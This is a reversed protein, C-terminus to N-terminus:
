ISVEMIEEDFFFHFFDKFHKVTLFMYIGCSVWGIPSRTFVNIYDEFGFMVSLALLFVLVSFCVGKMGKLHFMKRIEYSQRKKKVTEHYLTVDKFSQLNREGTILTTELQDMYLGFVLDKEYKDTILQVAEKKDTENASLIKAQFQMIDEKFEGNSRSIASALAEFVPKDDDSLSQTMNHIFKNRQIFAEHQYRKNVSMPMFVKAGYFAGLVTMILSIWWTYLLLFSVGGFALAPLGILRTYDRPGLPDGYAVRAANLEDVNIFNRQTFSRLRKNGAM